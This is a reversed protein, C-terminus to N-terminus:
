KNEGNVLAFARQAVLEWRGPANKDVAKQINILVESREVREKVSFCPAIDVEHYMCQTVKNVYHDDFLMESEYEVHAVDNNPLTVTVYFTKKM